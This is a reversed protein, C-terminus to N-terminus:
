LIQDCLAFLSLRRDMVPMLDIPSDNDKRSLSVKQIEIFYSDTASTRQGTRWNHDGSNKRTSKSRENGDIVTENRWGSWRTHLEFSIISASRSSVWSAFKSNVVKVSLPSSSDKNAPQLSNWKLTSSRISIRRKKFYIRASLRRVISWDISSAPRKKENTFVFNIRCNKALTIQTLLDMSCTVTSPWVVPTLM